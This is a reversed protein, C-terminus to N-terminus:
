DCWQDECPEGDGDGDTKQNPCNKLYFKAESCSTMQSCYTKGQCSFNGEIERTEIDRVTTAPPAEAVSASPKAPEQQSAKLYFIIVISSLIIAFVGFNSKSTQKIVKNHSNGKKPNQNIRQLGDIAVCAAKKKGSSDQIIDYFLVDGERPRRPMNKVASIHLFIMETESHKIFGFGRDDNWKTLTGRSQM